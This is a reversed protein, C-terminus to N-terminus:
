EVCMMFKIVGILKFWCLKIIVGGLVFLVDNNFFIVFVILVFLGFVFSNIKNILLCGLFIVFKFCEIFVVLIMWEVNLLGGFCWILIVLNNSLCVFCKIFILFFIMIKIFEIVFNVCM